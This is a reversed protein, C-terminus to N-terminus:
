THAVYRYIPRGIWYWLPAGFVLALGLYMLGMYMPRTPATPGVLSYMYAGVLAVVLGGAGVKVGQWFEVGDSTRSAEVDGNSRGGALDVGCDPCYQMESDTELGCEHCFPM